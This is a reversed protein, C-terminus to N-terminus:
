VIRKFPNCNRAMFLRVCPVRTHRVTRVSAVASTCVMPMPGGGGGVGGGDITCIVLGTHWRNQTNQASYDIARQHVNINESDADTHTQSHYYSRFTRINRCLPVSDARLLIICVIHIFTHIPLTSVHNEGAPLALFMNCENSNVRMTRKRSNQRNARSRYDCECKQYCLRGKRHSTPQNVPVCVCKCMAMSNYQVTNTPTAQLRQCRSM